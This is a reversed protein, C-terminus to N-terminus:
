PNLNPIEIVSNGSMDYFQPQLNSHINYLNMNNILVTWTKTYYCNEREEAAAMRIVGETHISRLHQM